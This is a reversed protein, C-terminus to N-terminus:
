KGGKANASILETLEKKSPLRGSLVVKGNIVLAPTNMVGYSLIKNIEEVKKIDAQINLERVAEVALNMLMNCKACGAGLIKIEM